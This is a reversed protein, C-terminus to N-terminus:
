FLSLRTSHYVSGYPADVRVWRGLASVRLHRPIDLPAAFGPILGLSTCAFIMRMPIDVEQGGGAVTLVKQEMLSKPPGAPGSFQRALSQGADSLERVVTVPLQDLLTFGSAPPLAGPWSFDMAPGSFERGAAVAELLAAASVVAGDRSVTGGVRRAAVVEFPTTVFVEVTGQDHQRLRAVAQADLGVTRSLLAQLGTAGASLQFTESM